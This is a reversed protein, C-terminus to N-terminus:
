ETRRTQMQQVSNATTRQAELITRRRKQAPGNENEPPPTSTFRPTHAKARPTEHGHESARRATELAIDVRDYHEDGHDRRTDTDELSRSRHEREHAGRQALSM